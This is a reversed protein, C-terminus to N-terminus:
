ESRDCCRDVLSNGSRDTVSAYEGEHKLAGARSRVLIRPETDLFALHLCLFTTYPHFLLRCKRLVEAVWFGVNELILHKTTAM